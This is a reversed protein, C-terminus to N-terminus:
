LHMFKHEQSLTDTGFHTVFWDLYQSYELCWDRLNTIDKKSLDKYDLLFGNMFLMGPQENYSLIMGVEAFEYYCKIRGVELITKNM